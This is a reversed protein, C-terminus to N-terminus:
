RGFGGASPDASTIRCAAGCIAQVLKGGPVAPLRSRGAMRCAALERGQSRVEYLPRVTAQRESSTEGGWRIMLPVLAM